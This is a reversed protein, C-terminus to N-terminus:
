TLSGTQRSTGLGREVLPAGHTQTPDPGQSPPTIDVVDPAVRLMTRRSPNHYVMEAKEATDFDMFHILNTKDNPQREHDIFMATLEKQMASLNAYGYHLASDETFSEKNMLSQLARLTKFGAEKAQVESIAKGALAARAAEVSDLGLAVAVRIQQRGTKIREKAQELTMTQVHSIATPVEWGSEALGPKQKDPLMGQLRAPGITPTYGADKIALGALKTQRAGLAESVTAMFDIWRPIKVTQAADNVKSRVPELAEVAIATLADRPPPTMGSDWFRNEADNYIPDFYYSPAIDDASLLNHKAALFKRGTQAGRLFVYTDAGAEKLAKRQEPTLGLMVISHAVDTHSLPKELMRDPVDFTLIKAGSPIKYPAHLIPFHHKTDPDYGLLEMMKPTLPHEEMMKKYYAECENLIHDAEASNRMFIDWLGWQDEEARLDGNMRLNARIREVEKLGKEATLWRKVDTDEHPAGYANLALKAEFYREWQEWKHLADTSGQKSFYQKVWEIRNPNQDANKFMRALIEASYNLEEPVVHWEGSNIRRATEDENRNLLPFPIDQGYRNQVTYQTSNDHFEYMLEARLKWLYEVANHTLEECEAQSMVHPVKKTKGPKEPNPVEDWRPPIFPHEPPPLMTCETQHYKQLAKNVSDMREIFAELTDPRVEIEIAQPKLARHLVADLNRNRRLIKVWEQHVSEPVMVRKGDMEYEYRKPAALGTFLHEESQANRITSHDPMPPMTASHAKMLKDVLERHSIIFRRNAENLDLDGGAGRAIAMEKPVVAPNKRLSISEFLAESDREKPNLQKDLMGKLEDDSMELLKKGRYKYEEIPIGIDTRILLARRREEIEENIGVCVGLHLQAHNPYINRAFGRLPRTEFGESGGILFPKLRDFDANEEIIRVADPLRKRMYALLSMCALVDYEPDQHALERDYKSGDPMRVGEDVGRDPNADRTNAEMLSSLTYAAYSKNTKADIKTGTKFSNESGDDLQAVLKALNLTDLRFRQFKKTHTLFIEDGMHRHLFAWLLRDDFRSINHGQTEAPAAIRRWRTKDADWYKLGKSHQDADPLQHLALPYAEGMQTRIAEAFAAMEGKYHRIKEAIVEQKFSQTEGDFIDTSPVGLVAAAAAALKPKDECQQMVESYHDFRDPYRMSIFKGGQHIRIEKKQTGDPSTLTYVRVEEEEDKKGGPKPIYTAKDALQDWLARYPNRFYLMIKAAAIHPDERGQHSYLDKLRSQTVLAAQPSVVSDKPVRINMKLTDIIRGDLTEIKGCFMTPDAFMTNLDTTEFDYNLSLFRGTEILHEVHDFDFQKRLWGDKSPDGLEATPTPKFDKPDGNCPVKELWSGFGGERKAQNLFQHRDQWSPIDSGRDLREGPPAMRNEPVPEPRGPKRTSHARAAEEADVHAFAKKFVDGERATALLGGATIGSAVDLNAIQTAQLYGGHYKRQQKITQVRILSAISKGVTSIQSTEASNGARIEITEFNPVVRGMYRCNADACIQAVRRGSELSSTHQAAIVDAKVLNVWAECDKRCGHGGAHIPMGSVTLQTGDDSLACPKKLKRLREQIQEARSLGRPNSVDPTCPLLDQTAFHIIFGDHIAQVTSYGQKVLKKVMQAQKNDNGPIASQSIVVFNNEHVLPRATHNSGANGNLVPHRGEAMGTLAADVEVNTGQTGTLLILRRGDEGHMGDGDDMSMIRRATKSARGVRVSGLKLEEDTQSGLTTKRGFREALGAEMQARAKYRAAASKITKLKEFFELRAEHREIKNELSERKKDNTTTEFKEKHREIKARLRQEFYQDMYPIINNRIDPTHRLENVGLVNMTTATKQLNSGYETIDRHTRTGVRLSTEYRNDNTSIMALAMGKDKFWDSIECLNDEVEAETPGWGDKQISTVDMDFYTPGREAIKKDFRDMVEQPMQNQAALRQMEDLFHQNSQTFFEKNLHDVDPKKGTYDDANHRGYRADGHNLYSGLWQGKYHGHVIFPTARASHPTANRTYNVSLRTNGQKDKVHLWGTGELPTFTPLDSPKISPYTSLKDQISRIVEPTAHVTKGHLYGYQIYAFLGDTHDLHRHTILIDNCYKLADIVDPAAAINPEDKPSLHLGLDVIVGVRDTKGKQNLGEHCVVKCNGGIAEGFGDVIPEMNNGGVSTMTLRGGETLAPPKTQQAASVLDKLGNKVLHDVTHPYRGKRMDHLIDNTVGLAQMRLHHHEDSMEEGLLNFEELTSWGKGDSKWAAQTLVPIYAPNRHFDWAPAYKTTVNPDAGRSVKAETAYLIGDSPDTAQTVPESQLKNDKDLTNVDFGMLAKAVADPVALKGNIRVEHAPVADFNFGGKESQGIITVSHGSVGKIDYRRLIQAVNPLNKDVRMQKNIEGIAGMVNTLNRMLSESGYPLGDEALDGDDAADYLCNGLVWVARPVMTPISVTSGDPTLTTAEAQALEIDFLKISQQQGDPMLRWYYTKLHTHGNADDLRAKTTVVVAGGTRPDVKAEALEVPRMKGNQQQLHDLGLLNLFGRRPWGWDTM